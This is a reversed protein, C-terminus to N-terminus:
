EGFLSAVRAEFAREALRGAATEGAAPGTTLLTASGFKVEGHWREPDVSDCVSWFSFTLKELNSHHRDRAGPLVEVGSGTFRKRELYM